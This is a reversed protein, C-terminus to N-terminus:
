ATSHVLRRGRVFQMEERKPSLNRWVEWPPNGSAYLNDLVQKDKFTDMASFFGDHQYASLQRERILRQFPEVVLEEGPEFYSFIDRKLVFFGANIRIGSNALEDIGTVLGNDDIRTIHYSLSPKVSM